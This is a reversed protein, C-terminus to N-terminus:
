CWTTRIRLVMALCTNAPFSCPETKPTFVLRPIWRTTHASRFLEVAHKSWAGEDTLMWQSCKLACWPRVAQTVLSCSKATITKLTAESFRQDISKLGPKVCISMKDIFNLLNQDPTLVFHKENKIRFNVPHKLTTDTNSKSDQEIQETSFQQMTSQWLYDTNVLDGLTRQALPIFHYICNRNELYTSYRRRLVYIPVLMWGACRSTDYCRTLPILPYIKCRM